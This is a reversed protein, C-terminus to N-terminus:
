ILVVTSFLIRQPGAKFNTSFNISGFTDLKMGGVITFICWIKQDDVYNLILAIVPVNPHSYIDVGM